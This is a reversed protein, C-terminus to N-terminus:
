SRGPRTPGSRRDGFDRRDDLEQDGQDAQAHRDVVRQQDDDAPALLAGVAQLPSAADLPRHLGGPARDHEAARGDRDAQERQHRQRKREQARDAVAAHQDRQDAHEDRHRQQRDHQALEPRAQVPRVHAVVVFGAARPRAPRLQDHACRQTAASPAASTSAASTSAAVFRCSPMDLTFVIALCPSALCPRSASSREPMPAPRGRAWRPARRLRWMARCRRGASAATGPTCPATAGAEGWHRRGPAATTSAKASARRRRPSGTAGREISTREAARAADAAAVDTEAAQGGLVLVEDVRYVAVERQHDRQDRQDGEHQQRPREARQQQRQLRHDEVHDADAGGPAHELQDPLLPWPEFRIQPMGAVPEIM